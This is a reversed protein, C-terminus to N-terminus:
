PTPSHQKAAPDTLAKLFSIIDAIEQKSLNLKEKPLTQNEPSIKLGAGGGENYFDMVEELTNFVGNHMYPGTLEINRV